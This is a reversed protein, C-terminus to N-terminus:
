WNRVLRGTPVSFPKSKKNKLFDIKIQEKGGPKYRIGGRHNEAVGKTIERWVRFKRLITTSYKYGLGKLIKDAKETGAGRKVYIGDVWMFLFDRGYAKAIKTMIRGIEYQAFLFVSRLYENEELRTHKWRSKGYRGRVYSVDLTRTALMGVSKLRVEKWRDKLWKEDEASIKSIPIKRKKAFNKRLNQRVEKELYNLTAKDIFGNNLLCYPYASRIDINLVKDFVPPSAKSNKISHAKTDPGVLYYTPDAFYPVKKNLRQVTAKIKAYAGLLHFNNSDSIIRKVKTGNNDYSVTNSYGTTRVNFAINENRLERLFARLNMKQIRIVTSM